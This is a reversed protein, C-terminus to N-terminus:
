AAGSLPRVAVIRADFERALAALVPHQRAEAAFDQVDRARVRRRVLTLSPRDPCRPAADVVELQAGVLEDLLRRLHNTALGVSAFSGRRAALRLEGPRCVVVGAEGLVAAAFRDRAHVQVLVDLWRGFARLDAVDDADSM